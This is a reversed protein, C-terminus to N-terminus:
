SAKSWHKGNWIPPTMSLWYDRGKILWVLFSPLNWGFAVGVGKTGIPVLQTLRTEPKYVRYETKDQSISEAALLDQLLNSCVVPVKAMIAHIARPKLSSVDGIAYVRPGGHLVHLSSPNTNVYGEGDLLQQDIFATNPAVGTAPIYLDGELTQGNDLTVLVSDTLHQLGDDGDVVGAQPPSVSEIRRGTIVIVGVHALQSEAKRAVSVPHNSLLQKSVTILTISVNVRSNNSGFGGLWPRGNLRNGLEGAIEVGTPGGGGIIIKKASPLKRQFQLWAEGTKTYDGSLGLLPSAARAGTAIILANYKRTSHEGDPSVITVTRNNHDLNIATAHLFTLMDKSYTNFAEYLPVFLKERPFASESTLARPCTPRCLFRSSSSVLVLEYLEQQPLSRIVHKLIYHCTSVGAYSGGIILITKKNM